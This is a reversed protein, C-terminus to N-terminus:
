ANDGRLLNYGRILKYGIPMMVIEDYVDYSKTRSQDAQLCNTCVKTRDFICMEKVKKLKPMKKQVLSLFTILVRIKWVFCIGKEVPNESSPKKQNTLM